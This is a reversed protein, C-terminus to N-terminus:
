VRRVCLGGFASGHVTVIQRFQMARNIPLWVAARNRAFTSRMAQAYFEDNLFTGIERDILPEIEEYPIYGRGVWQGAEIAGIDTLQKVARRVTSPSVQLEEVISWVDAVHEREAIHNMVITLKTQAPM